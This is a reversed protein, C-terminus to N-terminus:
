FSPAGPAGTAARSSASSSRESRNSKRTAEPPTGVIVTVTEGANARLRKYRENRDAILRELRSVEANHGAVEKAHSSQEAVMSAEAVSLRETTCQLRAEAAVVAGKAAAVANEKESATAYQASAARQLEDRARSLDAESTSLRGQVAQLQSKLTDYSNHYDAELQTMLTQQQRLQRSAQEAQALADAHAQTPAGQAARLMQLEVSMASVEGRRSKREEALVAAAEARESVFAQEKAQLANRWQMCELLARDREAKMKCSELAVARIDPAPPVPSVAASYKDQLQRFLHQHKRALHDDRDRVSGFFMPCGSAVCPWPTDRPAAAIFSAASSLIRELAALHECVLNSGALDAQASLLGWKSKQQLFACDRKPPSWSVWEPVAPTDVARAPQTPRAVSPSPRRIRDAAIDAYTVGPPPSTHHVEEQPQRPQQQQRSPQQQRPQQLQPAAAPKRRQQAPQRDRSSSVGGSGLVRTFAALAAALAAHQDGSKQRNQQQRRRQRSAKGPGPNPEIGGRLLLSRVVSAVAFSVDRSPMGRPSPGLDRWTSAPPSESSLPSSMIENM